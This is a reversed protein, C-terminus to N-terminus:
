HERKGTSRFNFGDGIEEMFALRLGWTWSVFLCGALLINHSFRRCTSLSLKVNPIYNFSRVKFTFFLLTDKDDISQKSTYCYVKM